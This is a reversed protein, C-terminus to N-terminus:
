QAVLNIDRAFSAGMRELEDNPQPWGASRGKVSRAAPGLEGLAAGFEHPM